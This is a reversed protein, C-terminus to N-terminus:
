IAVGHLGPKLSLDGEGEIQRFDLVRLKGEQSSAHGVETLCGACMQDVLYPFVFNRHEHELFSRQPTSPVLTRGRCFFQREVHCCPALTSKAIEDDAVRATRIDVIKRFQKFGGLRLNLIPLPCCPKLKLHM